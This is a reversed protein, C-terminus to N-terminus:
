AKLKYTLFIETSKKTLGPYHHYLVAIFFNQSGLYSQERLERPVRLNFQSM